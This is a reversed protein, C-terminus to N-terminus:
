VPRRLFRPLLRGPGLLNFLLCALAYTKWDMEKAPEIGCCRYIFREIAGFCRDLFPLSQGQYVRDMFWGLPKALAALLLLYIGIQAFHTWNM